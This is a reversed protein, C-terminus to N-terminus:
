ADAHEAETVRDHGNVHPTRAAAAQLQETIGVMLPNVIRWPAEGIIALVQNWQQAEFSISVVDTANLM